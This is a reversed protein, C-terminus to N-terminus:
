LYHELIIKRKNSFTFSFSFFSTFFTVPARRM